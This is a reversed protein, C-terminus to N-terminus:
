ATVVPPTTGPEICIVACICKCDLVITRTFSPPPPAVLNQEEFTLVVCGTAPDFSVLTFVTGLFEAVNNVNLPASSGKLVLRVQQRAGMRCPNSQADALAKLLECVCSTSKKHSTGATNGCCSGNNHFLSM